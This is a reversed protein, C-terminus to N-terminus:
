RGLSRGMRGAVTYLAAVGGWVLLAVFTVRANFVAATLAILAMREGIPLVIIKKLWRTFSSRELRRSLKVVANGSGDAPGRRERLYREAAAIGDAVEAQRELPARPSVAWTAAEAPVTLSAATGARAAKLRGADARAGTYSFDIMHRLMQLVMASVALVWIGYPGGHSDDLGATYGIALGVYVAYEKVRDFTADLWAGLPSFARTYRALQGDVCDLVFSLYLFIAGAIQGERTGTTFWVAALVAMGVSIGTVANPTLRLDAALKVLHPSWSSVFHTAFFGDDSKVTAELRAFEEDVEGLRLVASDAGAQGAVRDCCLRGIRCARVCVGSRVLGVLLLDGVEAAAMPGFGGTEALGALTEAVEALGELDAAGVQFAGRFVGNADAVGHFSTGAAVMRDGEVRVPPRLPGRDGGGMTVLASTGRSPHELLMALAETHAVLDGAVVAVPGAASRAVGAVRRLDDALGRSGEAGIMYAGGTAHIIDSSRAVVHVDGVPLGALQGTLRDLLTGDACRLSAAETTALVVAVTQSTGSSAPAHSDHM